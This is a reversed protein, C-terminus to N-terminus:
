AEDGIELLLKEICDVMHGITSIRGDVDDVKIYIGFEDEISIFIGIEDLSDAGLDEM